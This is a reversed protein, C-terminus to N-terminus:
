TTSQDNQSKMRSNVVTVKKNISKSTFVLVADVGAAIDLETELVSNSAVLSDTSVNILM